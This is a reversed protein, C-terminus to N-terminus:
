SVVLTAGSVSNGLVAQLLSEDVNEVLCRPTVVLDVVAGDAIQRLVSQQKLDSAVHLNHLYVRAQHSSLDALVRMPLSGLNVLIVERCLGADVLALVMELARRSQPGDDYLLKVRQVRDAAPFRAATSGRFYATGSRRGRGPIYVGSVHSVLAAVPVRHERVEFRSRVQRALTCEDFLSRVSNLLRENSSKLRDAFLDREEGTSKVVETTFPLEAVKQLLLDQFFLGVLGAKVREAILVVAELSARSIGQMDIAVFIEGQDGGQPELNSGSNAVSEPTM